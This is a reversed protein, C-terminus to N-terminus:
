GVHEVEQTRCFQEAARQAARRGLARDGCRRRLEKELAGVPQLNQPARPDVHPVGAYRPLEGCVRDLLRLAGERGLEEAIELRVVAYWPHRDPRPPAMRFYCSYRQSISFLSTRERAGLQGVRAHDEEPLLRRHHTKIYGVVPLSLGRVRHLPGDLCVTCDAALEEACAMERERMRRQLEELPAEPSDSDVSACEWRWGGPQEPLVAHRGGGFIALRRVELRRFGLRGGEEPAAAGVAYVGAAGPVPAAAGDSFFLQAEVHRVGDVFALAVRESAPPCPVRRLQPHEWVSAQGPLEEPEDKQPSGYEPAWEGAYVRVM